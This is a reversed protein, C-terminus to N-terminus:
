VEMRGQEPKPQLSGEGATEPQSARIFRAAVQPVIANGATHLLGVREPVGHALLYIGSKAAPIRRAKGDACMVWEYDSWFGTQSVPRGAEETLRGPKDGNDGHGALGELGQKLTDGLAVGIGGRNSDEFRRGEGSKRRGNWQECFNDAMPSTCTNIPEPRQEAISGQCGWGNLSFGQQSRQSETDAVDVSGYTGVPERPEAKGDVKQQVRIRQQEQQRECGRLEAHAVYWLRDRKHPADVGCAPLVSSGVAYDQGEMDSYVRDLWGHAIASAVQEGFVTAPRLERILSFWTPWLDRDDKGGTGKGATSFPQCPCSGTFVPRDAPWGALQLALSWGGIGAFFHHQTFGRIEDAKVETISRTDVWGDPIFGEHILQKLGAAAKPHFENYYNRM